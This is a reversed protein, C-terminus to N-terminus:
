QICMCITCCPRLQLCRVKWLRPSFDAPDNCAKAMDQLIADFYLHTVSVDPTACSRVLNRCFTTKGAGPLGCLVAICQRAAAREKTANAPLCASMCGTNARFTCYSATYM